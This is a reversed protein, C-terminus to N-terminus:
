AAPVVVREGPTLAGTVSVMGDLDDFIGTTVPVLRHVGRDGVTEVAYGGGALALLANVPVVLAHAVHATTVAVQVPEQDINGTAGPDDLSVTVSVTPPGGNGGGSAVTGVSSVTGPTTQQDPLTITVPDGVRVDGQLAADLSVAVQRETSTAALIPMGPGVAAGLTGAVSIIRLATPLFVAQGLTLSGTPPAGAPDLGDASALRDVAAATALDYGNSGPPIQARTAYGLAILDSNLQAVDPGSMGPALTRYARTSGYLLLVPLGDVRYLVEGQRIVAGVAPEATLTGRAQNIATYSGAYGVTGTEETVASLARRTVTALSTAAGNNQVVGAAPTAGGFPDTVALVVAGAAVLALVGVGVVVARRPRPRRPRPEGAGTTPIRPDTRM